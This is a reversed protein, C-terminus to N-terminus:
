GPMRMGGPLARAGGVGLQSDTFYCRPTCCRCTTPYSTRGRRRSRGVCRLTRRCSNRRSTRTTQRSRSRSRARFVLFTPITKTDDTDETADQGGSRILMCCQPLRGHLGSTNLFLRSICCQVSPSFSVAISARLSLTRNSPWIGTCASTLGNQILVFFM